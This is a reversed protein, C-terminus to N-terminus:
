NSAKSQLSRLNRQAPEFDPYKDAVQQFLQRAKANNNKDLEDLANSYVKMMPADLKTKRLAEPKTLPKSYLEAQATAFKEDLSEKASFAPSGFGVALALVGVLFVYRMVCNRRGTEMGLVRPPQIPEMRVPTEFDDASGNM